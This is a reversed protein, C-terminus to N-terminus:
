PRFNPFYTFTNTLIAERAKGKTEVSIPCYIQDWDIPASDNKSLCKKPRLALKRAKGPIRGYNKTRGNLIRTVVSEATYSSEGKYLCNPQDKKIFYGNNKTLMM